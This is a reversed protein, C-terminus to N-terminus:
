KGAKNLNLQYISIAERDKKKEGGILGMAAKSRESKLRVEM